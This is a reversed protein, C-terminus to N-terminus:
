IDYKWAMCFNLAKNIPSYDINFMSYPAQCYEVAVLVSSKKLKEIIAHTEKLSSLNDGFSIILSHNYQINLIAEDM